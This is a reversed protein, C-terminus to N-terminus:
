FEGRLLCGAGSADLVPLLSVTAQASDNSRRGFLWMAGGALVAAAGAGYGVWSWTEYTGIDSERGRSFKQTNQENVLSEHKINLVIGTVLAAVGVGATVMGAVRLGAGSSAAASTPTAVTQAPGQPVPYVLQPLPHLTPVVAPAVAPKPMLSECDAIHKEVGTRDEDPLNEAKRLFERFREVAQEYRSNQEYCRGQNYVYNPDNSDVYLDALIDIGKKYDGTACAKKAAKEQTQRNLAAEQGLHSSAKGAAWASSGSFSTVLTLVLFTRMSTRM